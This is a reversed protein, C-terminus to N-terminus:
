LVEANVKQQKLVQYAIKCDLCRRKTCYSDYLEILFQSQAANKSYCYTKFYNIKHNHEFPIKEYDEVCQHFIEKGEFHKQYTYSLPICFNILLAQISSDGLKKPLYSSTKGFQYHTNWYESAITNALFSKTDSSNQLHFLQPSRYIINALFAIRITPFNAPRMRMFNWVSKQMSKLNYKEKLFSYENKLKNFYTDEPLNDELFGATGFLLAELQLLNDAHKIVIKYNLRQALLEFGFRNVTGGLYHLLLCYKTYLWDNHLITLQQIIRNKKHELREYLLREQINTLNLWDINEWDNACPVPEAFQMLQTYKQLLLSPIKGNLELTPINQLPMDNYWVVHLIVSNYKKNKPHQHKKWDSAYIHIEVNGFLLTNGIKIKAETFDAGENTNHKGTAIIDITEGDTTYLQNPKILQHKWVYHLLEEKM